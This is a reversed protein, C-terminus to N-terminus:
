YNIRPLLLIPSMFLCLGLLVICLFTKIAFSYNIAYMSLIIFPLNALLIVYALPVKYLEHVLLSIGTVGGDFFNNPVLFGKLAFGATVVGMVIFIIDVMFSFNLHVHKRSREEDARTKIMLLSQEKKFHHEKLATKTLYSHTEIFNTQYAVWEDNNKILTANKLERYLKKAVIFYNDTGLYAISNADCLIQELKDNATEPHKTAMILRCVQEIQENNYDFQPLFKKAYSCSFEEHDKYGELFGTDYFLAATLLINLDHHPINEATAIHRANHLVEKTHHVTHYTLYKPLEKELKEIIFSRVKEFQM